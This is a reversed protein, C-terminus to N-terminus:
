DFKDFVAGDMQGDALADLDIASQSVENIVFGDGSWEYFLRLYEFVSFGPAGLEVQFKGRRFVASLTRM